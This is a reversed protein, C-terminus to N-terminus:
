VQCRVVEDMVERWQQDRGFRLVITSEYRGGRKAGFFLEAVGDGDVDVFGLFTRRPATLANGLTSFTHTRRYGYNGLDMIVVLQRPRQAIPRLTDSVPRPDTYVVVITSRETAGTALVHVDRTYRSLTETPIGQTPAVLTPIESLATSLDGSSAASVPKHTPQAGSVLLSVGEPVPALGAPVLRPCGPLSDLPGFPEWMRRKMTVEGDVRGDRIPRLREGPMMYSSDLARWGRGTLKIRRLGDPGMLTVPAVARGLDHDIARFVVGTSRALLASDAEWAPDGLTAPNAARESCGAITGAAVLPLAVHRWVSHRSPLLTTTTILRRVATLPM